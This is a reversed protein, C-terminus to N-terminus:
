PCHAPDPARRGRGKRRKAEIHGTVAARAVGDVADRDMALRVQGGEERAAVKQDTQQREGAFGTADQAFVEEGAEGFVGGEDMGPAACLKVHASKAPREIAPPQARRHEIHGVGFGQRLVM